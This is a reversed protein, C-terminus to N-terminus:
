WGLNDQFTGHYYFPLEHVWTAQSQNFLMRTWSPVFIQNGPSSYAFASFACQNHYFPCQHVYNTGLLAEHDHVIIWPDNNFMEGIADTWNHGFSLTYGAKLSSTTPM